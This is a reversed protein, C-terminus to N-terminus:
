LAFPRHAQLEEVIREPAADALHAPPHFLLDSARPHAVNAKLVLLYHDTDPDAHMIRRVIEALEDRTVDLVRPRAPRAAELAFDHLDRAASWYLFDSPEYAHGTAANFADVARRGAERDERLLSEIREIEEGSEALRAAPVAPPLLERRLEM